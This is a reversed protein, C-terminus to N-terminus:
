GVFILPITKVMGYIKSCRYHILFLLIGGIDFWKKFETRAENFVKFYCRECFCHNDHNALKDELPKTDWRTKPVDNITPM